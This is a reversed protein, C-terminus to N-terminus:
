RNGDWDFDGSIFGRSDDMFYVNHQMGTYNANVKTVTIAPKEIDHDTCSIFISLQFIFIAVFLCPRLLFFWKALFPRCIERKVLVSQKSKMQVLASFIDRLHPM